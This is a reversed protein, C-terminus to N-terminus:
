KQFITPFTALRFLDEFMTQVFCVMKHYQLPVAWNWLDCRQRLRPHAPGGPLPEKHAGALM